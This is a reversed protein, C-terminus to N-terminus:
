GGITVTYGGASNAVKSVPIALVNVQAMVDYGTSPLIKQDAFTPTIDKAPEIDIESADELTGLTGLITVGKRINSAILKGQETSDISVTGSGDHYGNAIKVSQTKSTITSTQKGVNPMTGTMKAKNGYATKGLLIEGATAKHATTGALLTNEEVTDGTLDILVEGNAVVKNNYLEAM